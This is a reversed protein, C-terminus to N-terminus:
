TRAALVAVAPVPRGQEGVVADQPGVVHQAADLGAGGVGLDVVAVGEPLGLDVAVGAPDAVVLEGLVPRRDGHSGLGHLSRSERTAVRFKLWCRALDDPCDM